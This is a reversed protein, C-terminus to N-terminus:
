DVHSELIILYRGRYLFIIGEKRIQNYSESIRVGHLMQRFIIKHIPYTLSINVFAAGWGCVFERSDFDGFPNKWFMQKTSGAM